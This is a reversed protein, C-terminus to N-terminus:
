SRPTQRRMSCCGGGNDAATGNDTDTETDSHKSRGQDAPAQCATELQQSLLRQSLLLGKMCREALQRQSLAQSM